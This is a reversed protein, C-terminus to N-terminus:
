CQEDRGISAVCLREVKTIAYHNVMLKMVPVGPHVNWCNTVLWPKQSVDYAAAWLRNSVGELSLM